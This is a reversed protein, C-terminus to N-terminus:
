EVSCDVCWEVLLTDALCNGADTRDSAFTDNYRQEMGIAIRCM